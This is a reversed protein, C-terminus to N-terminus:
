RHCLYESSTEKIFGALEPYHNTVCTPCIGHSFIAESHESIYTELMQWSQGTDRISKCHMCIPIIGKLHRVRGLVEELEKKQFAVFDRQEKYLDNRRKVEIHNRVRLKLLTLNIPKLM